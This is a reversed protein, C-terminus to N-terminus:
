TFASRSRESVIALVSGESTNRQNRMKLMGVLRSMFLIPRLFVTRSLRRRVSAAINTGTKVSSKVMSRSEKERRPIPFAMMCVDSLGSTSLTIFPPADALVRVKPCNMLLMAENRAGMMAEQPAVVLAKPKPQRAM